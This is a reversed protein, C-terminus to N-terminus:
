NALYIQDLAEVAEEKNKPNESEIKLLRSIMIQTFGSVEQSIWSGM